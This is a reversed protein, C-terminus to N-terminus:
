EITLSWEAGVARATLYVNDGPAPRRRVESLGSTVPEAVTRGAAPYFVVLEAGPSAGTGEVAFAGTAADYRMAALRGPAARVYARALVHLLDTRLGTVANTMCDVEFEGWVYPVQGARIDGQKHPDGCSERWTWLTASFLFEDQLDQHDRFYTDIPDSARRPDGGWEGVLVPAGGFAGAEARAVAFDAATLPRPIISGSYIHPAYAIQGDHAFVPPAGGGALSWLASPEFFVIRPLAGAEAEGARIAPLAAEYLSSLAANQEPSFANPENILDYGAVGPEAALVRAVHGLMAAYRTRIGVGGPGPADAFFQAFATMVAPSLERIGLPVCRDTGGDLTAWGPAGDWGFAPVTSPPCVTGPLAALGASWADQHLDLISYLGRSAFLRVLARAEGLYGDDYVGPAPEVRSWSLLLRVANWGIAAMLDADAADVPFVTPFDSGQWYEVLANVNVGRLLVHRGEADVIWGGHTVDGVASLAPLRLLPETPTPTAAATQTPPVTATLSATATATATASPPPTGTSTVSALATATATPSAPSIATATATAVPATTPTPRRASGVDNCATLAVALVLPLAPARRAGIAQIVGGM